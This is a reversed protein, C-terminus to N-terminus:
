FSNLENFIPLLISRKGNVGSVPKAPSAQPRAGKSLYRCLEEEGEEEVERGGERNRWECGSLVGVDCGGLSLCFYIHACVVCRHVCVFEVCVCVFPYISYYVCTCAWVGESLPTMRHEWYCLSWELPGWVSLERVLSSWVSEEVRLCTSGEVLQIVAYHVSSHTHSLSLSGMVFIPIYLEWGIKIHMPCTKITTSFTQSFLRYYLINLLSM